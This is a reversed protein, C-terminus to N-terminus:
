RSLLPALFDRLNGGAFRHAAIGARDAAILDTEQDGIMLSAGSDIDWHAMLDLLM